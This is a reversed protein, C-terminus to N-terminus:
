HRRGDQLVDGGNIADSDCCTAQANCAKVVTKCSAGQGMEIAVHRGVQLVALQRSETGEGTKCSTGKGDRPHQLMDGSCQLVAHHWSSCHYIFNGFITNYMVLHLLAHLGFLSSGVTTLMSIAARLTAARGQFPQLQSARAAVLSQPCAHTVPSLLPFQLHRRGTCKNTVEYM